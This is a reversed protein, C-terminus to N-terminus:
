PGAGEPSFPMRESHAHTPPGSPGPPRSPLRAPGPDLGRTRSRRKGPYLTGPLGMTQLYNHCREKHEELSSRQKYSRGCYGCKHPKGVASVSHLELGWNSAPRVPHPTAVCVDGFLRLCGAGPARLVTRETSLHVALYSRSRWPPDQVAGLGAATPNWGLQDRQQGGPRGPQSGDSVGTGYCSPVCGRAAM